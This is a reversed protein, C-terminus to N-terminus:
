LAQWDGARRQQPRCLPRSARASRGGAGTRDSGTTFSMFTTVIRYLIHV